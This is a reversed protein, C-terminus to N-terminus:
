LVCSTGYVNTHSFNAIFMSSRLFRRFFLCSLTWECTGSQLLTLMCTFYTADSNSFYRDMLTYSKAFHNNPPGHM